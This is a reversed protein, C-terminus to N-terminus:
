SRKTWSRKSTRSTRGEGSEGLGYGKITRALIVTPSGSPGRSGQVGRLGQASRSRGPAVDATARGDYDQVLAMLRSRALFQQRM